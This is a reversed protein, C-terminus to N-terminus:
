YQWCFVDVTHHKTWVSSMNQSRKLHKVKVGLSVLTAMKPEETSSCSSDFNDWDLLFFLGCKCTPSHNILGVQCCSKKKISPTLLLVCCEVKSEYGVKPREISGSGEETVLTSFQFCVRVPLPCETDAYWSLGSTNMRPSEGVSSTSSSAFLLLLAVVVVFFLM